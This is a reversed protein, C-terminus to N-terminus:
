ETIYKMLLEDAKKRAPTMEPKMLRGMLSDMETQVAGPVRTVRRLDLTDNVLATLIAPKEAAVTAGNLRMSDNISKITSTGFSSLHGSKLADVVHEGQPRSGTLEGDVFAFKFKNPQVVMEKGENTIGTFPHLKKVHTFWTVSEGKAELAHKFAKGMYPTDEILLIGERHPLMKGIQGRKAALIGVAAVGGAIAASEIPHDYVEKLMASAASKISDGITASDKTEVQEANAPKPM